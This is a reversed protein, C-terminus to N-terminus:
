FSITPSTHHTFFIPSLFISPITQLLYFYKSLVTSSITTLFYPSFFSNTFYGPLIFLYRMTLICKCIPSKCLIFLPDLSSFQFFLLMCGGMKNIDQACTTPTLICFGLIGTTIHEKILSTEDPVELSKFSNLTTGFNRENHCQNCQNKTPLLLYGVNTGVENYAINIIINKSHNDKAFGLPLAHM